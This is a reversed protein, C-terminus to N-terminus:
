LTCLGTSLKQTEESKESLHFPHLTSLMTGPAYYVGM